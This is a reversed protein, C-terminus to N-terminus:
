ATQRKKKFVNRTIDLSYLSTYRRYSESRNRDEIVPTMPVSIEEKPQTNGTFVLTSFFLQNM